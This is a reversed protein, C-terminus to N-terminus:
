RVLLVPSFLHSSAGVSSGVVVNRSVIAAPQVLVMKKSMPGTLKVDLIRVGAWKVIRYTANNGNGTVSDFIPIVRTQGIISALEDKVGASIGTDGNLTLQGDDDFVLPKGLENLDAESIGNVIQRALDATSNNAGGIDVTGRNGPSGTGQPYLNVEAKGDSGVIVRRSNEDYRYDDSACNEFAKNWTQLDLAFPLIQITQSNGPTLSFGKISQAMVSTSSCQMTQGTRGFIKGFFLPVEGNREASKTLSVQMGIFPLDPNNSLQATDSLSAFYGIRIEQSLPGSDLEINGNVVSNARVYEAAVQRSVAEASSSTAGLKLQNYMEWSGAMSAADASRRMEAKAGSLFGVDISFALFSFLVFLTFVTLILVTGRQKRRSSRLPRHMAGRLLVASRCDCGSADALSSRSPGHSRLCVYQALTM